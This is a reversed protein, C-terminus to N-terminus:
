IQWMLVCVYKTESFPPREPIKQVIKTKYKFSKGDSRNDDVDDIEARYYNWLHGSTTSYNQSYEFLNCMPMVIDLDEANEILEVTLTQFTHDLNLMIKLRLM